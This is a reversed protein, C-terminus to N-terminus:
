RTAGRTPVTAWAPLRLTTGPHILDPDPGVRDRNVRYLRPWARSIAQDAPEADRRLLDATISWLSEGAAVRLIRVGGYQRDPLALGELREPLPPRGPGGTSAAASSSAVAAGAVASVLVRVLRPRLLGSSGAATHRPTARVADVSCVLVSLLLWVLVLSLTTASLLVVVQEVLRDGRAGAGALAAWESRAASISWRMVPGLVVAGLVIAILM